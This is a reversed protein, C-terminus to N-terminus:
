ADKNFTKDVGEAVEDFWAEVNDSTGFRVIEANPLQLFESIQTALKLCNASDSEYSSFLQARLLYPKARSKLYLIDLGFLNGHDEDQEAVELKKVLSLEGELRKTRFVTRSLISFRDTEKDFVVKDEFPSRSMMYLGMLIFPSDFLLLGMAMRGVISITSRVEGEPKERVTMLIIGVLFMVLPAIMWFLGQSLPKNYRETIILRNEEQTIKM